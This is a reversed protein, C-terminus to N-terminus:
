PVKQSLQMWMDGICFCVVESLTELGQPVIGDFCVHSKVVIPTILYRLFSPVVATILGEGMVLFVAEGM